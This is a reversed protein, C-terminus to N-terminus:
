HEVKGLCSARGEVYVTGHREGYVGVLSSLNCVCIKFSLSCLEFGRAPGGRPQKGVQSIPAVFCGAPLTPTLLLRAPLTGACSGPCMFAERHWGTVTRVSCTPGPGGLRYVLLREAPTKVAGSVM